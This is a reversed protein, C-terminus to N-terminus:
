EKKVEEKPKNGGSTIMGPRIIKSTVEIKVEVESFKEDWQDKVKKWEKPFKSHFVGAFDFIDVKMKKQGQSLAMNIRKEIEEELQGTLAKIIKPNMIDLNTANQILSEQTEIKATVSWKDNQIHPILQTRSRVPYFSVVGKDDKPTFSIVAKDIENRLWLVGRTVKDDIQGVMKDKKFVATGKVYPLQGEQAMPIIEIWPLTAAGTDGSLMQSLDNVSVYMGIKLKSMEKLMEASSRELPPIYELTQKATGKSVFVSARGRPQPARMIFDVHDRIGEKALKEGLVFIDVHGWFMKRPLKEQLKSMADAISVGNASRVLTVAGGGGDGGGNMGKQNSGGARPIFVQVSLEINKGETIDFGAGMVLALDNVEVRDWCGSLLLLCMLLSLLFFVKKM